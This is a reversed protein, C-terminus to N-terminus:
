LKLLRSEAVVLDLLKQASSQARDFVVEEFSASRKVQSWYLLLRPEPQVDKTSSDRDILEENLFTFIADLGGDDPGGVTM